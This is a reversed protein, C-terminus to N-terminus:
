KIKKEHTKLATKQNNKYYYGLGVIVAILTLYIAFTSFGGSRVTTDPAAFNQPVAPTQNASAPIVSNTSTNQTSSTISSSSNRNPLPLGVSTQNPDDPTNTGPTQAVVSLNHIVVCSVLVGLFLTSNIIQLVTKLVSKKMKIANYCLM